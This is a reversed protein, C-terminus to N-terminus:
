KTLLLLGPVDIWLHMRCNFHQMVIYMCVCVFVCVCVCVCQDPGTRPTIWAVDDLIVIHKQGHLLKINRTFSDTLYVCGM